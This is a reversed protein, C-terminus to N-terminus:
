VEIKTPKFRALRAAVDALEAQEKLWIAEYSASTAGRRPRRPRIQIQLPSDILSNRSPNSIM